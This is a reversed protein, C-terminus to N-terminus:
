QCTRETPKLTPEPTGDGGKELRYEPRRSLYDAKVNQKGPRFFIRFDYGALEQAWRAQRRNLVKTTMFLELNNHDTIVQVQHNAGEVYRRWKKFCDVISLPEQRM